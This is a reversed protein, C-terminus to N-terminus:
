TLIVNLVSYSVLFMLAALILICLEKTFNRVEPKDPYKYFMYAYVPILLVFAAVLVLSAILISASVMFVISTLDM